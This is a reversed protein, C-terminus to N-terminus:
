GTPGARRQMEPDPQAVVDARRTGGVGREIAVALGLVDAGVPDHVGVREVPVLAALRHVDAPLQAPEGRHEHISSPARTDPSGDNAGPSRVRSSNLENRLATAACLRLLHT